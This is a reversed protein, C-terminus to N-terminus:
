RRRVDLFGDFCGLADRLISLISGCLFFPGLVVTAKNFGGLVFMLVGAAALFMTWVWNIEQVVGLASLLQGLGLTIMLVGATLSSKM